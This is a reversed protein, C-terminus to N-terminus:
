AFTTAVRIIELGDVRKVCCGGRGNRFWAVGKEGAEKAFSYSVTTVNRFHFMNTGAGEM